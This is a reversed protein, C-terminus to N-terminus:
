NLRLTRAFVHTTHISSPGAPNDDFGAAKGANLMGPKLDGPEVLSVKVGEGWVEMRLADTWVMAAAKSASYMSQYPLGIRGGISGVNVVRRCEGTMRPVCARVMRVMGFFNTAMRWLDM